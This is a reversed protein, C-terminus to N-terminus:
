RSAVTARGHCVLDRQTGSGAGGDCLHRAMEGGAGGQSGPGRGLRGAIEGVSLEELYKWELVLREEDPLRDLVTLVQQRIEAVELLAEPAAAVTGSVMDDCIVKAAQAQRAVRRRHDGIKNRAVAILWGSLNGDGEALSSIQRVLALITESVVDEALHRDGGVRLCVYRWVTPLYRRYLCEWASLDGIQVGRLLEADTLL